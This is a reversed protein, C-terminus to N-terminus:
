YHTPTSRIAPSPASILIGTRRETGATTQFFSCVSPGRDSLLWEIRSSTGILKHLIRFPRLRVSTAVVPMADELAVPQNLLRSKATLSSSTDIQFYPQTFRRLTPPEVRNAANKATTTTSKPTTSTTTAATTTTTTKKSASAPAPVVPLHEARQYVIAIGHKGTKHEALLTMRAAPGDHVGIQVRNGFLSLDLLDDQLDPAFRISSRAWTAGGKTLLGRSAVDVDLYEGTGINNRPQLVVVPHWLPTMTTNSRRIQVSLGNSHTIRWTAGYDTKDEAEAGVGKTARSTARLAASKTTTTTTTDEESQSNKLSNEMTAVVSTTFATSTLRPDRVGGLLDSLTGIDLVGCFFIPDSLVSVASASAPVAIGPAPGPDVASLCYDNGVHFTRQFVSQRTHDVVQIDVTRARITFLARESNQLMLPDFHDRM